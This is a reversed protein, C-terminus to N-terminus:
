PFFLRWAVVGLWATSLVLAIASSVRARDWGLVAPVFSSLAMLGSAGLLARRVVGRWAEHRAFDDALAERFAFALLLLLWAGIALFLGTRSARKVPPMRTLPVARPSMSPPMEDFM